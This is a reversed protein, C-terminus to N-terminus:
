VVFVQAYKLKFASRATQKVLLKMCIKRETCNYASAANAKKHRQNQNIQPGITLRVTIIILQSPSHWNDGNAAIETWSGLGGTGM